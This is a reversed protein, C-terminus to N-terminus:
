QLQGQKLKGQEMKVKQRQALGSIQSETTSKSVREFQKSPLNQEDTEVWMQGLRM